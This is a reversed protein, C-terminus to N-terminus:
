SQEEVLSYTADQGEHKTKKHTPFNNRSLILGCESCVVRANKWAKRKDQNRTTNNRKDKERAEEPNNVRKAKRYEAQQAKNTELWERHKQLNHQHNAYWREKWGRTPINKNVCDPFQELWYRERTELDKKSVCPYNELLEIIVENDDEFLCTSACKNQNDNKAQHRHICLRESLTNTTSGIYCVEELGRIYLKYIKGQSYDSM